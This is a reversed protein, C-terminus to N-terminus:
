RDPHGVGVPVPRPADRAPMPEDGVGVVVRQEAVLADVDDDDGGAPQGREWSARRSRRRCAPRRHSAARWRGAPPWPRLAPGPEEPLYTAAEAAVAVALGAAAVAIEERRRM